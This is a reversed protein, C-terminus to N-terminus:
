LFILIFYSYFMSHKLDMFTELMESATKGWRLQFELNIMKQRCILYIVIFGWGSALSIWYIYLSPFHNTMHLFFFLIYLQCHGKGLPPSKQM